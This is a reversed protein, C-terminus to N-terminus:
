PHPFRPTNFDQAWGIVSTGEHVHGPAGEREWGGRCGQLPKEGGPPAPAWWLGAERSEM